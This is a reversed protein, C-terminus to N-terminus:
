RRRAALEEYIGVTQRIVTAVEHRETLRARAAQVLEDALGTDGLAQRMADALRGPDGAPVLWGTVGDEIFERTGGVDTAVIPRASRAAELLSVPMGERVSSQVVLDAAVLLDAADPRHGTLLLLSGVGCQEARHVLSARLPGEGIVVLRTDHPFPALRGFAEILVDQGKAERLNGLNMVVRVDDPIGLSARAQSRSLTPAAAEIANAVTRYRRRRLPDLRRHRATITECVGITADFCGGFVLHNFAQRLKDTEHFTHETRILVPRLGLGRTAIAAWREAAMNHAHIIDPRFERLMARLRRLASWSFGLGKGLVRARIGSKELRSVNGGGTDLAWVEVDFRDRPLHQAQLVVMSEAGGFDLQLILHVLRIRSL